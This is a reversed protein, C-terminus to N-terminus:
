CYVIRSTNLFVQCTYHCLSHLSLLNLSKPFLLCCQPGKPNQLPLCVLSLLLTTMDLPNQGASHIETLLGSVYHLFFMMGAVYFGSNSPGTIAITENVLLGFEEEKGDSDTPAATDEILHIMATAGSERTGSNCLWSTVLCQATVTSAINRCVPCGNEANSHNTSCVHYLIDHPEQSRLSSISHALALFDHATNSVLLASTPPLHILSSIAHVLNSPAYEPPMPCDWSLQKVHHHLDRGFLTHHHPQLGCIMGCIFGSQSDLDRGMLACQVHTTWSTVYDHDHQDPRQKLETYIPGYADYL